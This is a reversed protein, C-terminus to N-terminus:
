EKVLSIERIEFGTITRTPKRRLRAWLYRWGTLRIESTVKGCVCVGPASRIHDPSWTDVSGGAERHALYGRLQDDSYQSLASM